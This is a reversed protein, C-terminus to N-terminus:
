EPGAAERLLREAVTKAQGPRTLRHPRPGSRDLAEFLAEYRARRREFTSWAWRIPHEPDLWRGIREVNGTGSWLERGQLARVVSRWIVRRMVLGRPYDLWVVDTARALVLSQVRGYNGDCIWREGATAADVRHLFEDPAHSNLDRWGAQWNIADLEVRPLDLAEGLRRALTTKGSGSSGIVLVRLPAAASV